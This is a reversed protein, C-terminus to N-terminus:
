IINFLNVLIFYLCVELLFIVTMNHSNYYHKLGVKKNSKRSLIRKYHNYYLPGNKWIKVYDCEDKKNTLQNYPIWEIIIDNYNKISLQMIQIFNDIKDNGSTWNIFNNKLHNIQCSKCWEHTIDTYLKGCKECYFSYERREKGQRKKWEKNKQHTMPLRYSYKLAVKTNLVKTRKSLSNHIFKGYCEIKNDNIESRYGLVMIHDKTKPDQIM